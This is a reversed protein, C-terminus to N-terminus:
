HPTVMAAVVPAAIGSGTRVTQRAGRAVRRRTITQARRTRTPRSGSTQSRIRQFLGSRMPRVARGGSTGGKGGGRKPPEDDDSEGEQKTRRVLSVREQIGVGSIEWLLRSHSELCSVLCEGWHLGKAYLTRAQNRTKRGRDIAWTVVDRKGPGYELAKRTCSTMTANPKHCTSTACRKPRAM